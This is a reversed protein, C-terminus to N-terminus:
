AVDDDETPKLYDRESHQWYHLGMTAGFGVTVFAWSAFISLLPAESPHFFVVRVIQFLGLLVGLPVGRRLLGERVIFRDRGKTRIQEWAQKETQTM